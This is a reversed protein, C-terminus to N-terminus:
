LDFQSTAELKISWDRFIYRSTLLFRGQENTVVSARFGHEDAVYKVLRRRGDPDEITYFGTVRGKGDFEEHRAVRGGSHQDDFGFKYPSPAALDSQLRPNSKADSEPVDKFRPLSNLYMRFLYM